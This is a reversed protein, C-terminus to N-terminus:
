IGPPPLSNLPSAPPSSLESPMIPPSEEQEDDSPLERHPLLKDGHVGEGASALAVNRGPTPLIGSDARLIPSRGGTAGAGSHASVGGDREPGTGAGGGRTHPTGRSVGGQQKQLGTASPHVADSDTSSTLPVSQAPDAPPAETPGDATASAKSDDTAMGRSLQEFQQTSHHSLPTHM